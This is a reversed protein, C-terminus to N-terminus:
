QLRRPISEKWERAAFPEGDLTVELELQVDYVAADSRVELKAVTACTAEPWTITFASRGRAWAAGPDTTSVGVIGDYQDTVRAGHAGEYTGGYRTVVRTERGLVEHEVRWVVGEADDAGPGPAALFGHASEALGDVVPISLSLASRDLELAVPEPPPWCNPWDTGAVALRLTHGETLTWTTAELEIQVDLWEGPVLPEPERGTAGGPDAPWVGRHTLNLMGRTILASTGDPFVDCLKMAVHAVAASSRVRLAVRPNGLVEGPALGNAGILWEYTVSRADDPRQDSPQGWPLAGACSIWAAVGVDGVVDVRDVGSSDVSLERWELDPHPWAPLERWVGDHRALDPEPKTPRRVFVQGRTTASPAGDRLHEDFFAILEADADINPGPRAKAPDRHSWPGALLRWPVALQEVTRFTNNRYGDAWGAVLM